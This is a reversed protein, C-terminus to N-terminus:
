VNSKKEKCASRAAEKALNESQELKELTKSLVKKNLIEGQSEKYIGDVLANIFNAAEPTTFKRALRMSEAIAVKPPINEDYLLEYVGLRLISREIRQIREFKYSESINKIFLDIDGRRKTIQCVREMSGLVSKRTISLETMIFPVITEEELDNVDKCYLLQLVVERLKKQPVTM